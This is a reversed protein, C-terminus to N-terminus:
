LSREVLVGVLNAAQAFTDSANSAVRRIHLLIAKSTDSATGTVPGLSQDRAVVTHVEGYNVSPAATFVAGSPTLTQNMSLASSGTSMETGVRTSTAYQYEWGVNGAGTVHVTWYIWISVKQWSYPIYLSSSAQITGTAKGYEMTPWGAMVEIAPFGDLIQTPHFTNGPLWIHDTAPPAARPTAYKIRPNNYLEWIYHAWLESGAADPHVGDPILTEWNPTDLFAQTVNLVGWGNTACLKAM